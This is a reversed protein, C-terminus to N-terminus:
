IENTVGKAYIVNEDIAKLCMTIHFLGFLNLVYIKPKNEVTFIECKGYNNMKTGGGEAKSPSKAKLTPFFYFFEVIDINSFICRCYLYQLIYVWYCYEVIYISCSINRDFYIFFVFNNIKQLKLIFRILFLNSVYVM